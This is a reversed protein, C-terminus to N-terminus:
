PRGLMPQLKDMWEDTSWGSSVEGAEIGNIFVTPTTHVARVRHYKVAWKLRQSVEGLGDNGEVGELSLLSGFAGADYGSAAAIGALKAYLQAKSLDKTADDFFETQKAFIKGIYAPARAEDLITAAMVADHMCCSQAHWPQPVCQFLFEIQDTLGREQLTVVVGAYVTSFMKNSFPCCVDHFMEVVVSPSAAHTLKIGPPAPPLPAPM